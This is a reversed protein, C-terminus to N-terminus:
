KTHDPSVPILSSQAAFRWLPPSSPTFLNGKKDLHGATNPAICQCRALVFYFLFTHNHTHKGITGDEAISNQTGFQVLVSRQKNQINGLAGKLDTVCTNVSSFIGCHLFYFVPFVSSLLSARSLPALVHTRPTGIIRKRLPSLGLTHVWLCTSTLQAARCRTSCNIHVVSATVHRQISSRADEEEDIKGGSAHILTPFANEEMKRQDFLKGPIENNKGPGEKAEALVKNLWIIQCYNQLKQYIARSHTAAAATACDFPLCNKKLGGEAPDNEKIRSFFYFSQCM